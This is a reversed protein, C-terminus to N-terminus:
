ARSKPGSHHENGLYHVRLHLGRWLRLGREDCTGFTSVADLLARPEAGVTSCCHEYRWGRGLGHRRTGVASFRDGSSGLEARFAPLPHLLRDMESVELGGRKGWNLGLLQQILERGSTLALRNYTTMKEKKDAFFIRLPRFLCWVLRPWELINRAIM